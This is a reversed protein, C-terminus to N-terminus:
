GAWRKNRLFVLVLIIVLSFLSLYNSFARLPTEKFIFLVKHEGPPVMVSMDGHPKEIEIKTKTGDVQAQWGPYYYNHFVLKTEEITKVVARFRTPSEESYTLEGEAVEIKAAPLTSPREETWLPLRLYEEKLTLYVQSIEEAYGTKTKNAFYRNLFYDDTREPLIKEPRFYSFTLVPALVLLSLAIAQSYKLKIPLKEITAALFSTLFTALILFRWPFQFYPLIPLRYWIFSSRINMLFLVMALSLFGWGFLVLDEKKKKKRLGLWFFGLFSAAVALLNVIGIQFSMEDSSGWISIGYGWSPFILQKIFPFHDSFNFVTDAIMYRKEWFAPLWFFTSLCIGLLFGLTLNLFAKKKKKISILLMLGYFLLFPITMLFTINHSLILLAFAVGTFALNRLGKEKVSKDVAWAVLPIFVFSLAEGIAGRVYVDVARYPTCVYLVSGLLSFLNSFNRKLFFFMTVGSLILSLAFIVKISGVLSLGSLYFIEGLFFPLPYVFNFLPYGYNFSLDPVWRPPIQGGKLARDMEYLWAVHMDDHLSYFGPGIMGWVTPIALFVILLPFLIKKTLLKKLIRKM